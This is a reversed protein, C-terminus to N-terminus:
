FRYTAGIRGGSVASGGNFQLNVGWNPSFFYRAGIQAGLNFDGDSHDYGDPLNDDYSYNFYTLNVGGYVNWESPLTLLRDFHYNGIAGIGFTSYDFSYGAFKEDNSAYSVEAGVTIDEAIYQEYGAYVPIGDNSDFGVGFNIQSTGVQANAATFIGAILCFSFITKKM